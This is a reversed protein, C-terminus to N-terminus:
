RKLEHLNNLDFPSGLFSFCSIFIYYQSTFSYLPIFKYCIISIFSNYYYQAAHTLFVWLVVSGFVIFICILQINIQAVQIFELANQQCPPKYSHSWPVEGPYVSGEMSITAHFIVERIQWQQAAKPGAIGWGGATQAVSDAVWPAWIEFTSKWPEYNLRTPRFEVSCQLAKRLWGPALQLLQPFYTGNGLVSTL